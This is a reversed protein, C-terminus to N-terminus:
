PGGPQVDAGVYQSLAPKNSHRTVSATSSSRTATHACIASRTRRTGPDRRRPWAPAALGLFAATLASAAVTAFGFKKMM